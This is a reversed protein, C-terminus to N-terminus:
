GFLVKTLLFDALLIGLSATVVASTTALGVGEAGGRTQLGKYCGVSAIIVGFVAAKLIGSWFDEADLFEFTRALYSPAPENLVGTILFWGGFVGILDGLAVLLPLMLMGALVRPVVLFQVPDAAMVELASVQESVKMTGLEAAMASGVRGAVMMGGLVPVLERLLALGLLVPVYDEAQFRRFGEYIQLALVMGTFLATLAVVPLSQVGVRELQKLLERFEFPRRFSLRLTRGLLAAYRGVQEFLLLTASGLHALL